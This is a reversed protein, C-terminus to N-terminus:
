EYSVRKINRRFFYYVFYYIMISWLIFRIADFMSSRPIYISYSMFFVLAFLNVLSRKVMIFSIYYGLILMFFIVGPVGFQMYLDIIVNTGLGYNARSYNTIITSSSLDGPESNFLEKSLLSPVLPFPSFAYFFMSKGYNFGKKEAIEYGVYLNRNNIILDMGIDTFSSIKSNQEGSELFSGDSSSRAYSIFTLVFMGSIVIVAFLKLKIPKIFISFCFLFTLVTQFAAGRDGPYLFIILYFLIAFLLLKNIKFIDWFSNNTNNYQLRLFSLIICLTLVVQTFVLLASPLEFFADPKRGLIGDKALYFITMSLGIFVISLINIIYKYIGDDLSTIHLTLKEKKIKRKKFTLFLLSGLGYFSYGMEALATSKSILNKDFSFYKYVPFYFPDSPYVFVPYVFNVYLFSIFFLVHFNFFNKDGRLNESIVLYASILFLIFITTCFGLNYEHPANIYLILSIINVLVLLTLKM